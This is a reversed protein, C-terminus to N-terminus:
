RAVLAPHAIAPNQEFIETGDPAPLAHAADCHECRERTVVRPRRCKPCAIRAPWQLLTIMLLFGTLGFL